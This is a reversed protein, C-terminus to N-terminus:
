ISDSRLEVSYNHITLAKKNEKKKKKIAERQKWWEHDYKVLHWCEKKLCEKARVQKVTLSCKKLKCYACPKKAYTNNLTEHKM